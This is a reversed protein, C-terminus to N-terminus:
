QNLRARIEAPTTLKKLEKELDKTDTGVLSNVKDQLLRLEQLDAEYKELEEITIPDPNKSELFTRVRSHDKKLRAYVDDYALTYAEALHKQKKAFDENGMIGQQLTLLRGHKEEVSAILQNKRDRLRIMERVKTIQEKPLDENKIVLAEQYLTIAQEYNKADVAASADNIKADYAQQIRIREQERAQEELWEQHGRPTDKWDIIERLAPQQQPTEGLNIIMTPISAGFHNGYVPNEANYWAGLAADLMEHRFPVGSKLGYKKGDVVSSSDPKMNTFFALVQAEKNMTQLVKASSLDKLERYYLVGHKFKLVDEYQQNNQDTYAIKWEGDFTGDSDFVGTINVVKYKGAGEFPGYAHSFTGKFLNKNFGSSITRINTSGNDASLRHTWVGTKQGNLFQGTITESTGNDSTITVAWPGTKRSDRFGGTVQVTCEGRGEITRKENYKFMGNYVRQQNADEFYNYEAEGNLYPGTYTKVEQAGAAVTLLTCIITFATVKM